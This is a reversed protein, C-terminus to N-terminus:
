AVSFTLPRSGGFLSFFKSFEFVFKSGCSVIPRCPSPFQVANGRVTYGDRGRGWLKVNTFASM